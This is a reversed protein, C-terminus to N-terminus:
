HAAYTVAPKDRNWCNRCDLCAGGQTPAPCVDQRKHDPTNTVHSLGVGALGVLASPMSFPRDIMPASLRIMLNEPCPIGSRSWRILMGREKTPLWHMMAATLLCVVFISLLHPVSQIDGTDMWRFEPGGNTLNPARKVLVVMAATYNVWEDNLLDLSLPVAELRRTFGMRVNPFMYNARRAYCIFCSSGAIKALKGGTKCGWASIGFTFSPMKSNEGTIDGGVLKKAAKVSFGQSLREKVLTVFTNFIIQTYTTM